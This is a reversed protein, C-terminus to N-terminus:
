HKEVEAVLYWGLKEEYKKIFGDSFWEDHTISARNLHAIHIRKIVFGSQKLKRVFEKKTLLKVVLTKDNNPYEILSLREKLKMKLFKFHRLYDWLFVTWWFFMSNKNYIALYAQAGPKMVRYVEDLVKEFNPCHHIVGFSYVFDFQSNKYPMKEADGVIAETHYGYIEFRHEIIKKDEPTISIGHMVGGREALKLHDTGMGYGVELVQKNNVDLSEIEELLWPQDKYRAEEVQDFYSKGLLTMDGSVMKSDCPAANWHNRANNKYENGEMTNFDYTNM